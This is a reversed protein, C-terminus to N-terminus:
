LLTTKLLITLDLIKVKTFTDFRSTIANEHTLSSIECLSIQIGYFM